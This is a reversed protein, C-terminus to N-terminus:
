WNIFKNEGIKVTLIVVSYYVSVSSLVYGDSGLVPLDSEYVPVAAVVQREDNGTVGSTDSADMNARIASDDQTPTVVGADPPNKLQIIYTVGRYIRTSHKSKTWQVESKNAGGPHPARLRAGTLPNEPSM